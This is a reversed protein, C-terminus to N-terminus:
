RESAILLSPTLLRTSAARRARSCPHSYAGLVGQADALITPAGLAPRAGDRDDHVETSCEISRVGTPSPVSASPVWGVSM